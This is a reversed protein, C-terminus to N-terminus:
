GKFILLPTTLPRASGGFGRRRGGGGWVLVEHFFHRMQTMKTKFRKLKQHIRKDKELQDITAWECHLYSSPPPCPVPPCLTVDVRCLGGEAAAFPNPPPLATKSCRQRLFFGEDVAAGDYFRRRTTPSVAAAGGNPKCLEVWGDRGLSSGAPPAALTWVHRLGWPSM